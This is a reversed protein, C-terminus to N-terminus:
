YHKYHYISNSILITFGFQFKEAISVARSTSCQTKLSNSLQFILVFFFIRHPEAGLQHSWSLLHIYFLNLYLWTHFYMGIISLEQFVSAPSDHSRLWSTSWLLIGGWFCVFFVGWDLLYLVFFLCYLWSYKAENRSFKKVIMGSIDYIYTYVYTYICVYIYWLHVCMCM